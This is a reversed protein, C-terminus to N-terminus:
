FATLRSRVEGPRVVTEEESRHLRVPRSRHVKWEWSSMGEAEGRSPDEQYPKATKCVM